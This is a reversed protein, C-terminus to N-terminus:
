DLLRIRDAGLPGSWDQPDLARKITCLDVLDNSTQFGLLCQRRFLSPTGLPLLTLQGSVPKTRL